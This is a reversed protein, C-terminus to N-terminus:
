APDGADVVCGIGIKTVKADLHHHMMEDMVMQAEHWCQEISAMPQHREIDQGGVIMTIVLTIIPVDM